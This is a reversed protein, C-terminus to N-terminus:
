EGFKLKLQVSLDPKCDFEGSNITENVPKTTEAKTHDSEDVPIHKSVPKETNRSAAIASPKPIIVDQSTVDKRDNTWLVSIARRWWCRAIAKISRM